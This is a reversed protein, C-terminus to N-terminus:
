GFAIRIDPKNPNKRGIQGPTPKKLSPKKISIAFWPFLNYIVM